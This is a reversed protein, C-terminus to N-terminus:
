RIREMVDLQVEDCHDAFTYGSRTCTLFCTTRGGEYGPLVPRQLATYGSVQAIWIDALALLLGANRGQRCGGMIVHRNKGFLSNMKVLESRWAWVVEQCLWDQGVWQGYENGHGVITLEAIKDGRACLKILKSVMDRVGNIKVDGWTFLQDIWMAPDFKHDDVMYVNIEAM